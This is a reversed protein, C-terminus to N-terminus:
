GATGDVDHADVVRVFRQHSGSLVLDELVGWALLVVPLRLVRVGDRRRFDQCLLELHVHHMLARFVLHVLLDTSVIVQPGEGLASWLLVIAVHLVMDIPHAHDRCILLFLVTLGLNTLDNKLLASLSLEYRLAHCVFGLVGVEVSVQCLGDLGLFVSHAYVSVSQVRTSETLGVEVCRSNGTSRGFADAAGGVLWLM